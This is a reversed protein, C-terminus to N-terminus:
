RTCTSSGGPCVFTESFVLAGTAWQFGYNPDQEVAQSARVQMRVTDAGTYGTSGTGLAFEDHVQAKAISWNNSWPVAGPNGTIGLANVMEYILNTSSWSIMATSGSVSFAITLGQGHFQLPLPCERSDEHEIWLDMELWNGRDEVACNHGASTPQRDSDGDGDSDGGGCAATVLALLFVSRRLYGTSNESM